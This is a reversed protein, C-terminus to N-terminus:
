NIDIFVFLIGVFEFKGLELEYRDCGDRVWYEVGFRRMWRLCIYDSLM